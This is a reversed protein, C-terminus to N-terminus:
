RETRARKTARAASATSDYNQLAHRLEGIVRRLLEPPEIVRARPGWELVWSVVPTLDGVTMSLRIGGGAIPALRQSPHVKRSKVYEAAAADFEVIVRHREQSRWIGFEGQFYDEISFDDPLEFRENTDCQTDRMRDVLLTRIEGRATHFGVCYVADRHFAMAYPHVTIREDQEKGHSRYVLHLPRLDAVSQFLDDLEDLKNSYDKPAYPLYLFREELRADALGANPGRGPRQAVALLRHVALDIEEHLATGKLCHFLRRAALLAYVQTRRLEVKRPMDRQPIRWVIQGGGRVRNPELDYDRGVEKLYRRLTRSSVKLCESLEYITLGRPHRELLERVRDL